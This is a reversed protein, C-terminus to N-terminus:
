IGLNLPVLTPSLRYTSYIDGIHIIAPWCWMTWNFNNWCWVVVPKLLNSPWISPYATQFINVSGCTSIPVCVCVSRRIDACVCTCVSLSFRPWLYLLLNRDISFSISVKILFCIYLRSAKCKVTLKIQKGSVSRLFAIHLLKSYVACKEKLILDWHETWFCFDQAGLDEKIVLSVEM